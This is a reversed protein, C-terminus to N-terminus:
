TGLGSGAAAAAGPADPSVGDHGVRVFVDGGHLDRDVTPRDVGVLTFQDDGRGLAVVGVNGSEAPVVPHVRHAHAPHAQDLDVGPAPGRQLGRAHDLAAVAHRDLGRGFGDDLGLLAHELEQQDVVRQVTRHAVLAPFARQLVLRHRVTRALAPVDLLLPVLLLRDVHRLQHQEVTLAADQAVPAGPEGLLDGAVRQDMEQVPAVGGLDVREGVVLERRVERAVGHLDARHAREGRGGVPELRPGPVEGVGFRGAGPTRHTAPDHDVGGAVFQQAEVPDVGFGDVPRPQAVPAPETELGELPALPEGFREGSAVRLGLGFHHAPVVGEVPHGLGDGAREVVGSRATDGYETAGMQRVLRLVRPRLEGLTHDAGVVDVGLEVVPEVGPQDETQRPRGDGLGTGRAARDQHVGVVDLFFEAHQVQTQPVGPDPVARLDDLDRRGRAADGREGRGRHPRAGAGPGVDDVRQQTATRRGVADVGLDEGPGGFHEAVVRTPRQPHHESTRREGFGRAHRGVDRVPDQCPALVRGEEGRKTPRVHVARDVHPEHRPQQGTPDGELVTSRRDRRAPPDRGVFQGPRRSEVRAPDQGGGRVALDVRQDQQTRIRDGVEGVVFEGFPRQLRRRVHDRDVQERVVRVPVGVDHKGGRSESGGVAGGGVELSPHGPEGLRDGRRAVGM